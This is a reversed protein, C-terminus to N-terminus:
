IFNSSIHQGAVSPDQPRRGAWMAQQNINMSVYHYQIGAEISNKHAAATTSLTLFIRSLRLVLALVYPPLTALKVQLPIYKQAHLFSKRLM